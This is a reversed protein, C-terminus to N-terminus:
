MADNAQDRVGPFVWHKLSYEWLKGLIHLYLTVSQTYTCTSIRMFLTQQNVDLANRYSYVINCVIIETIGGNPDLFTILTTMRRAAHSPQFCPYYPSRWVSELVATKTLYSPSPIPISISSPIHISVQSWHSVSRLGLFHSIIFKHSTM